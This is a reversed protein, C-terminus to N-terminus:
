DHTWSHRHSVWTAWSHSNNICPVAKRYMNDVCLRNVWKFGAKVHAPRVYHKASLKGRMLLNCSCIQHSILWFNLCSKYPPIPSLNPIHYIYSQQIIQHFQHYILYMRSWLCCHSMVLQCTVSTVVDVSNHRFTTHCQWSVPLLRSLMLVM